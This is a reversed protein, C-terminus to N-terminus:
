KSRSSGGGGCELTHAQTRTYTRTYGVQHSYKAMAANDEEKQRQALAWQELEEQNWNMLLRCMSFSTHKLMAHVIM